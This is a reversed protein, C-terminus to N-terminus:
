SLRAEQVGPFVVMMWFKEKELRNEGSFRRSSILGQDSKVTAIPNGFGLCDKM